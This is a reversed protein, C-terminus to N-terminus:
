LRPFNGSGGMVWLNQQPPLFNYYQSKTVAKILCDVDLTVRPEPAAEDTIYCGVTVGGVFVVESILEGLRDVALEFIVVNKGVNRLV